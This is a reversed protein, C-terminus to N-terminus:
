ELDNDSDCNPCVYVSFRVNACKAHVATKCEHCKISNSSSIREPMKKLCIMCDDRGEDSSSSPEKKIPKVATRNLAKKPSVKRKKIVASTEKKQKSIERKKQVM